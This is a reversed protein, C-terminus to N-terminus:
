QVAYVLYSTGPLDLRKLWAPPSGALLQAALGHSNRDTLAEAQVQGPCLAVYTAGSGRVIREAEDGEASFGDIVTRNGHNNRHYPAGFVSLPTHVLLHSGSDIPAFITASGLAALATLNGPIRCSEASKTSQSTAASEEPVPVVAWAMPAFVFLALSARLGHILAPRSGDRPHGIAVFAWVGGLLALPTASTVVRVEWMAGALGAVTIAGVFLWAGRRVGNSWLAAAAIGGIGVLLPIVLLTGAQPHLRVATTLPLAETVRSLWVSRVVPDLQAYPSTLVGPCVAVVVTIVLAGAVGIACARRLPTSLQEGHASLAALCGGGLVAALVHPLSLADPSVVAYRWPAVIAAFGLAVAGALGLGFARLVPAQAPGRLIWSLALAAVLVAIFPLNELSIALSLAVAIAAGIARRPRDRMMADAGLATMLVLLTIQPAHHDIRGPVFQGFQVCSMVALLMAPLAGAPGTLVVGAFVTVAILVGQLALPFILRALLEAQAPNTFLEFSRILLALPVDVVRSWHMVVGTPPDLRHVALDFWSQGDLWARVQVMRMADDTDAYFGTHWISVIGPWSLALSAITGLLVLLVPSLPASGTRALPLTSRPALSLTM